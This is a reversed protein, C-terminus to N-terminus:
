FSKENNSFSSEDLGVFIAAISTKIDLKVELVYYRYIRFFPKGKIHACHYVELYKSSQSLYDSRNWGSLSPHPRIADIFIFRSSIWRTARIINRSGISYSFIYIYM